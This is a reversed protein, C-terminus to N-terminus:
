ILAGMSSYVGNSFFKEQDKRGCIVLSGSKGFGEEGRWDDEVIDLAM